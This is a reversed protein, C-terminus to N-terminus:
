KRAQYVNKLVVAMQARTIQENPRFIDNGFGNVVRENRMTEIATLAWHNDPVDSFSSTTRKSPENYLGANFLMQVMQARTVNTNPSFLNAGTGNMIKNQAVLTINQRAWHDHAVDQFNIQTSTPKPELFNVMVTAAQARTLPHNPKFTGDNLGNMWGKEAAFRIESEAWHGKIDRLHFGVDYQYLNWQDMITGVTRKYYNGGLHNYGANAVEFLFEKSANDISWGNSMRQQYADRAFGYRSNLLLSGALFNVAEEYSKFSRYWNDRRKTEDFILRNTGLNTIVPIAREFDEDPQGVLQWANPPNFGWVKIGFINNAHYATRTTGYGSEIVAMGVIASAPIGWKENANAAYTAIETVFATQEQKSPGKIAPLYAHSNRGNIHDEQPVPSFTAAFISYSNFPLLLLIITIVIINKYWKDM